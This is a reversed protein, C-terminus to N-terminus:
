KYFDKLEGAPLTILGEERDGVQCVQEPKVAVLYATYAAVLADLQDHQYLGELPLHGRLLHHPTIEELALMPNPIDLGERYLVLQRQLRGELTGKLLPRHGLLVAFCGHPHVEILTRSAPEQGREYFRYGLSRLRRYITFGTQMWRPAAQVDAPTRYLRINRRRLEYECVKWGSWTRGNPRLNYRRRVDPTAMLGRNPSQPADIAVVAQELGAVFALVGELDASELAALRLDGDLAAYHMPRSGATPDIGVYLADSFLM